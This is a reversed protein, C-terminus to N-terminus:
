RASISSVYTVLFKLPCCSGRVVVLLVMHYCCQLLHLKVQRGHENRKSGGEKNYSFLLSNLTASGANKKEEIMLGNMRRLPPMKLLQSNANCISQFSRTVSGYLGCYYSVSVFDGLGLMECSAVCGLLLLVM